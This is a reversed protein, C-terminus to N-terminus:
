KCVCTPHCAVVYHNQARLGLANEPPSKAPVAQQLVPLQVPTARKRLEDRSKEFPAEIQVYARLEQVCVPAARRV